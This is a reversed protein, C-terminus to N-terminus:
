ITPTNNSDEIIFGDRVLQKRREDDAMFKSGNDGIFDKLAQYKEQKSLWALYNSISMMDEVFLHTEAYDIASM